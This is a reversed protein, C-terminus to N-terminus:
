RHRPMARPDRQVIQTWKRWEAPKGVRVISEGVSLSRLQDPTVLFDLESSVTGANMMTGEQLRHTLVTKEARGIIDACLEANTREGQSMIVSVNTNQVMMTLDPEHENSTQWDTPGQTCVIVAIGSSRARQLLDVLLRRSVFSAEDVILFRPRKDVIAGSNRDAAYVSMRRLVSASVMQTIAPKGMSDLGVYSLGPTTVDFAPRDGTARLVRRGAQTEYMATLRAGLGGAADAMAKDPRILSDFDDRTFGPVATIVEAVMEKTAAKLDAAALVKGITYVTPAPYKVPDVSHAAYVLSVLQGLQKENLAAYYAAEFEQSALITDRAEDPGMGLLANFWYDPDPDSIRFQQFGIAHADAYDRCWDLLGGKQADEKLDLLMGSWGLDLLGGAIVKITETKGSGTSGFLLGHTSIEKETILVPARTKDVGIPFQRTGFEHTETTHTDADPLLANTPAAVVQKSVRKKESSSPLLEESHGAKVKAGIRWHLAQSGILFRGGAGLVVAFVLIALWPAQGRTIGTDLGVVAGLWRLYHGVWESAFVFLYVVGIAGIAATEWQRLFRHLLLAVPVALLASPLLLLVLVAGFSLVSALLSAQSESRPSQNRPDPM